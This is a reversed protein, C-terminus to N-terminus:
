KQLKGNVVKITKDSSTLVGNSTWESEPDKPVAFTGHEAKSDAQIWLASGGSSSSINRLTSSVENGYVIGNAIRFKAETTLIVGGGSNKATNGSITGGNMTFTGKLVFLGGGDSTSNGSITGGNMIFSSFDGTYNGQIIYLGGGCSSSNGSIIGGNMTFTSNWLYVGGGYNSNRTAITVNGSITGGNMTFDSNGVCVGGGFGYSNGIATNGSITGGNITFTGANMYVGGGYGSPGAYTDGIAKNGSITGGNMTFEGRSVNVGGGYADHLGDGNSTNGSITGGNMTFSAYYGEMYVLPAINNMTAGDIGKTLGVLNVDQLTVTQRAAIRIISGPSTLSIKHNGRIYININNVNGFTNETSGTLDFSGTINIVYNEIDTTEKGKIDEIAKEWETINPVNFVKHVQTMQISVTNNQGAKVDTYNFDFSSAYLKNKPYYADVQVHWRGVSVVAKLSSSGGKTEFIKTEGNGTLTIKHEMQSLMANDPPWVARGDGGLNITITGEDSKWGSFCSSLLLIILCFLLLNVANKRFFSAKQKNM